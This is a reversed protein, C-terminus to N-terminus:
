DGLVRAVQRAIVLEENTPLVLVHVASDPAHIVTQKSTNAAADLSVGLWRSLECVRARVQPANEGIGATFVLADLGGLVAALAGLERAIRYCFYEVAQKAQPADSAELDRMDSSIGSIGLLGSKHYLLTSLEDPTMGEQQLLYLLVGPDIDGSRTGMVLGDLATFGMTSAVSKGALMACMSAGNGLHCVVTRGEAARADVAPLTAAIYEYSLGHFGYRRVGRAYLERPLAFMQELPGQGAHFATDFCAVQPLDPLRWRIAKIPVLNHPAHLPALPILAELQAIVDDTVPVAASFAAGGHVVRHGVGALQTGGFLEPFQEFLVDLVQEHNTASIEQKIPARQADGAISLRAPASSSASNIRDVQGRRVVTEGAFVAFKLSSSGANLVAILGESM